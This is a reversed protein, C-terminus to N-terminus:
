VRWWSIELGNRRMPTTKMTILLWAPIERGADILKNKEVELSYSCKFQRGYRNRAEELKDGDSLGNSWHLERPENQLDTTLHDPLEIREHKARFAFVCLGAILFLIVFLKFSIDVCLM